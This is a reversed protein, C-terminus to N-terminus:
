ENSMVESQSHAFRCSEHFVGPRKRDDAWWRFADGIPPLEMQVRILGYETLLASATHIATHRKTMGASDQASRSGPAGYVIQNRFPVIQDVSAMPAFRQTAKM